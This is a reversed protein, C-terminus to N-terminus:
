TELTFNCLLLFQSFTNHRINHGKISVKGLQFRVRPGDGRLCERRIWVSTRDRTSALDNFKTREQCEGRAKHIKFLQCMSARLSRLSCLSVSREEDRDQLGITWYVKSFSTVIKLNRDPLRPSCVKDSEIINGINIKGRSINRM